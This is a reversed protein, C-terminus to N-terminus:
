EFSSNNLEPRPGSGSLRQHTEPESHHTGSEARSPIIRGGRCRTYTRRKEGHRHRTMWLLERDLGARLALGGQLWRIDIGKLIPRAQSASSTPRSWQARWLNM